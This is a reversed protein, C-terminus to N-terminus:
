LMIKRPEDADEEQEEGATTLSNMLSGSHHRQRRRRRVNAAAIDAIGVGHHHQLGEVARAVGDRRGDDVEEAEPDELNRRRSGLEGCAM